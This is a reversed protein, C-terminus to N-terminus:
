IPFIPVLQQFFIDKTKVFPQVISEMDSKTLKKTILM